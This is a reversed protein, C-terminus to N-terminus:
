PSVAHGTDPSDSGEVLAVTRPSQAGLRDMIEEWAERDRLRDGSRALREEIVEGLNRGAWAPADDEYPSCRWEGDELAYICGVQHGWRSDRLIRVATEGVSEGPEARGSFLNARGQQPNRALIPRCTDPTPGLEDLDGLQLLREITGTDRYHEVLMFGNWPDDPRGGNYLGCIVFGKPTQACIAGHRAM